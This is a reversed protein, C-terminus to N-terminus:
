LFDKEAILALAISGSTIGSNKDAPATVMFSVAKGTKNIEPKNKMKLLPNLGRRIKTAPITIVNTIAGISM